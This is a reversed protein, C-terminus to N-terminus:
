RVKRWPHALYSAEVWAEDVEPDKFTLQGGFYSWRVSEDTFDARDWDITLKDGEVKYRADCPCREDAPGWEPSLKQTLRGDRFTTTITRPEEAVDGFAAFREWDALTLRVVYTGDPFPASSATQPSADAAPAACDKPPPLLHAGAGPTARLERMVQASQPDRALAARVPETAAVLAQLGQPTPVDIRVGSRCLRAVHAAEGGAEATAFRATDAVAERIAERQGDSLRELAKPSAVFTDVRNFLAYGTLRRAFNQYGNGIIFEPASEVGDVRGKRLAPLVENSAFGQLPVAGLAEVIQATTANDVIRLRQGRFHEPATLARKALLRRMHNPVLGLPEVGAERLASALTDGAPGAMAERAAQTTTIVFPAQLPAFARLGATAWARAPLLGFDERGARTARALKVENAALRSDYNDELRVRLSGGSRQEIRKALYQSHAGGADTAEIAIVRPEDKAAAGAKNTKDDGSGGCAAIAGAALTAVALPTILASRTM